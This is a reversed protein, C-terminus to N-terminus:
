KEEIVPVEEPSDFEFESEYKRRELVEAESKKKGGQWDGKKAMEILVLLSNQGKDRMSIEIETKARKNKMKGIKAIGGEFPFKDGFVKGFSTEKYAKSSVWADSLNKDAYVVSANKTAQEKLEGKLKSDGKNIGEKIGANMTIYAADDKVVLFGMGGAIEYVNDKKSLAGKQKSNVADLVKEFAKKDKLGISIVFEPVDNGKGDFNVKGVVGFVDGSIAKTIDDATLGLEKLSGEVEGLLGKEKLYGFLGELNLSFSFGASAQDIPINKLIGGKVSENAIKDNLKNIEENGTYDANVLIKGKEFTFGLAFATGKNNVGTVGMVMAAQANSASLKEINFWVTADYSQGAAEKFSENSGILTKNDKLEFLKKVDATSVGKKNTYFVGVKGQWALVADKEFVAFKIKGEEKFEPKKVDKIEKWTADDKVFKTLKDENDIAFVVGVGANGESADEISSFVYVKNLFDIGSNLFKKVSQSAKEAKEESAGMEKLNEKSVLKDLSITKGTLQKLDLRVVFAVDQPILKTHEPAKKGGCASILLSLTGLVALFLTNGFPKYTKQM